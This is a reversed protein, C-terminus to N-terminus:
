SGEMLMDTTVLVPRGLPSLVATDDGLGVVVRCHEPTRQRIWDILAFEDGPINPM